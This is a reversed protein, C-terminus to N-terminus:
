ALLRAALGSQDNLHSRKFPQAMSKYGRLARRPPIDAFTLDEPRRGRTAHFRESSTREKNHLLSPFRCSSRMRLYPVFSYRNCRADSVLHGSGVGWQSALMMYSTLRFCM